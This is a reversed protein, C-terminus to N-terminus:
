SAVHRDVGVDGGVLKRIEQLSVVDALQQGVLADGLAHLIGIEQEVGRGSIEDQRQVLLADGFAVQRKKEAQHSVEGRAADEQGCGSFFLLPSTSLV